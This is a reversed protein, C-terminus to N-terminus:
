ITVTTNGVPYTGPNNNTTSAIACNDNVIASGLAVPTANCVGPNNNVTVAVPCTIAPAQNDIVTVTFSCTSTNPVADAARYTITSTGVAFSTGSAAGGIQTVVAGICNEHLYTICCSICAGATECDGNQINFRM